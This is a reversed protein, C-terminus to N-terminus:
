FQNNQVIDYSRLEQPNVDSSISGYNFKVVRDALHYYDDDHTVAIITKGSQRLEDLWVNYFFNRNQPDQEAAWEDLVLLPKNEMLSLLLALRKQQGKSLRTIASGEQSNIKLVGDLNLMRRFYVFPKNTESLDHEDYNRRFLYNNSFIVAVNQVFALYEKWSVPKENIYVQGSVPTYLGTLINIFTTKGSGNGGTIFIIEGNNITLNLPQLTFTIEGTENIYEYSINEFRISTCAAAEISKPLPYPLEDLEGEIKDIREMAIKVGTYFPFFMILQAIPSIMFLVTTIFVTTEVADLRAVMPLVFIIVGLVIYWSYTGLLENTVYKKSTRNSLSEAQNRNRVIHKGYLNNSRQDSMKIEKFGDLMERLSGYYDDQLDRVKNLDREIVNNRYLYVLMLIGMVVLVSIGGIPSVWMLYALACLITISSNVLNVAAEPVRSLIRTDGIAAYIREAGLKEFSEFKARRIKEVISLELSYLIGNTINVMYNQFFSTCVFSLTILGAFALGPQQNFVPLPTGSIAMNLFMLIGVYTVSSICGLVLVFLYFYKSRQKFVKFVNM